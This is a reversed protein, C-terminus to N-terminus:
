PKSFSSIKYIQSNMFSEITPPLECILFFIDRCSPPLNGIQSNKADNEVFKPQNLEVVLSVVDKGGAISAAPDATLPSTLRSPDAQYHQLFGVVM